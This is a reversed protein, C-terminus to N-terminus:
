FLSIYTNVVETMLSITAVALSLGLVFLLTDAAFSLVEKITDSM